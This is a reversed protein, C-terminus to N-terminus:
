RSWEPIDTLQDNCKIRLQSQARKLAVLGKHSDSPAATFSMFYLIKIEDVRSPSQLDNNAHTFPAISGPRETVILWDGVRINAYVYHSHCQCQRQPMQM